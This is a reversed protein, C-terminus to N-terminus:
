GGGISVPLSGRALKGGEKILLFSVCAGRQWWVM